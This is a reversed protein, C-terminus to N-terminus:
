WVTTKKLQPPTRKESFLLNVHINRWIGIIRESSHCDIREFVAFVMFANTWFWICFASRASLAFAVLLALGTTYTDIRYTYTYM